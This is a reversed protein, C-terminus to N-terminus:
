VTRRPLLPLGEVLSETDKRGHTEVLGVVVDTGESHLVHAASLMAFTKGTGAAYGLYIRLVGRAKQSKRIQEIYGEPSPKLTFNM